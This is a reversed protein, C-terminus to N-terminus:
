RQGAGQVGELHDVGIPQDEEVRRGIRERGDPHDKEPFLFFEQQEEKPRNRHKQYGIPHLESQDRPHLQEPFISYLLVAGRACLKTGHAKRASEDVFGIVSFIYTCAHMLIILLSLSLLSLLSFIKHHFPFPLNSQFKETITGNKLLLCCAMMLEKINIKRRIVNLPESSLVKGVDGYGLNSMEFLDLLRQADEDTWGQQEM